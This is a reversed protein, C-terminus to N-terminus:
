RETMYVTIAPNNVQGTNNIVRLRIEDGANININFLSYVKSQGDAAVTAVNSGGVLTAGTWTNPASTSISMALIKMNKPVIFPTTSTAVGHRLLDVPANVIGSRAADYTIMTQSAIYSKIAAQTALYDNSNETLGTANSIGYVTVGSLLDLTGDISVNGYVTGGSISYFRGDSESETYYRDDHTHATTTLDNFGIQHPNSAGTLSTHATLETELAFDPTNQIYTWDLNGFLTSATINYGTANISGYITGGSISYFRGDSESETYYREDHTHSTNTIDTWLHTHATTTLDNFGIQHPNSTGTLSTHATLETELAFDPTNQIYTWDLNGYFTTATIGGTNNIGNTNITSDFTNASLFNNNSETKTYTQATTYADVIGYGGLTTPTNTINTWDINGVIDAYITSASITGNVFLESGDWVLDNSTDFRYLSANWYAIGSNIPIDERTAVAQTNGSEGVRFTDTPEDFFFVYDVLAGRDVIIGAEGRTVGSGTEGSNITILNDKISLDESYVTTATGAVFLNGSIIVSNDFTKNGAINENGTTHVYDGEVFDTIQSKTHTHATTTLDSWLHTHSTSTLDNFSTLHPNSAGTLSTHATLDTYLAFNPENQIYSWDLNGYFTTATIGGTNNIGNTNITLDFTNASLFNNNVETKTYYNSLDTVASNSIWTGASYMLFYGDITGGTNIDALDDLYISDKTFHISTDSTHSGFNSQLAFDPEGTIYNWDLNGYFTTATINTATINPITTDFTNASLFNNNVETKTYADTIGYGSITTPTNNIESWNHTHATSTLDNFGTGHPNTAGTHNYFETHTTYGTIENVSIFTMDAEFKSYPEITSLDTIHNGNEDTIIIDGDNVLQQLEASRMVEMISFQGDVGTLTLGSSTGGTAPANEDTLLLYGLDEIIINGGVQKFLKIEM